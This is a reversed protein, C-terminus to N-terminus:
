RTASPQSINYFRIVLAVISVVLLGALSTTNWIAANDQILISKAANLHTEKVQKIEPPQAAVGQTASDSVQNSAPQQTNSDSKKSKTM